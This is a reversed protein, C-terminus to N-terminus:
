NKKKKHSQTYCCLKTVQCQVQDYVVASRKYHPSDVQVLDLWALFGLSIPQKSQKLKMAKLKLNIGIVGTATLQSITWMISHFLLNCSYLCVFSKFSGWLGPLAPWVGPCSAYDYQQWQSTGFVWVFWQLRAWRWVTSAGGRCRLRLLGWLPINKASTFTINCQLANGDTGTCVGRSETTPDLLTICCSEHSKKIWWAKSSPHIQTLANTM